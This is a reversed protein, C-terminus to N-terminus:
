TRAAGSFRAPHVSTLVANASQDDPLEMAAARQAVSQRHNALETRTTGADWGLAAAMLEAVVPAAALGSDPSELGIRLRRELVDELHLAGEHTVAYLAEALIAGGGSAVSHGLSPDTAIQELVEGLRDGYRGLLREAVTPSLGHRAALEAAASRAAALGHAGVLPVLQTRSRPATLRGRLAADVADRAMVRYTTLKGGAVIAIGARPVDVVHERSLKATSRAKGKVLPRLGAWVARIDERTVPQELVGNVERLLYEVDKSTAAPNTKDFHWPTDTTGILWHEGWPIVFLVSAGARLILGLESRFRDRDVVIHVGKSMTVGLGAPARLMAQSEETWVGTANVIARARIEFLEGSEEDRAIVAHTGVKNSNVGDGPNIAVASVRTAALAGAAVATRVITAVLRADDVQGDFYRLGGRCAAADLGPMQQRLQKRSIHKHPGVGPHRGGSYSLIDYLLMGAGVYLREIIPTRVPYLFPVPRVLHPALSRLLLGREVLAERVLKFDLQELYRIGGHVLKSSRSSTGSAWDQAEIIGVALGRSAADLAAGAGVIGGGIVLVDIPRTRLADLASARQAANLRDAGSPIPSDSM